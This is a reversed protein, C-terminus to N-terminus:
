YQTLLKPLHQEMFSLLSRNGADQIRLLIIGSFEKPPFARIDAIGKDMTILVRRERRVHDLLVKDEVGKLNESFVTDAEYGATILLNAIESPLNEDIKFRM